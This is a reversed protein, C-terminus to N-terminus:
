KRFQQFFDQWQEKTLNRKSILQPRKSSRAKTSGQLQLIVIPRITKSTKQKEREKSWKDLKMDPVFFNM